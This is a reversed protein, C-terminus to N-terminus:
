VCIRAELNSKHILNPIPPFVFEAPRDYRHSSSRRGYRRFTTQQGRRWGGYESGLSFFWTTSVRWRARTSWVRRFRYKADRYPHIFTSSLNLFLYKSTPLSSVKLLTAFIEIFFQNFTIHYNIICVAHCIFSSNASFDTKCNRLGRSFHLQWRPLSQHLKSFGVQPSFIHFSVGLYFLIHALM